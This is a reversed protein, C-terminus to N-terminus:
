PALVEQTPDITAFLNSLLAINRVSSSISVIYRSSCILKLWIAFAIPLLGLKILDRNLFAPTSLRVMLAAHSIRLFGANLLAINSRIYRM